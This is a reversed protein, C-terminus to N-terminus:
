ANRARRGPEATRPEVTEEAQLLRHKIGSLAEGLRRQELESLHDFAIARTQKALEEM